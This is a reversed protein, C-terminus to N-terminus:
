TESSIKDRKDLIVMVTSHLDEPVNIQTLIANLIRRDNIFVKFEKKTLGM